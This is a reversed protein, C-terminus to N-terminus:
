EIRDLEQQLAQRFEDSSLVAGNANPSPFVAILRRSEKIGPLWENIWEDLEIMEAAAGAWEGNACEVAYQSHPWVPVTEVGDPTSTLVWGNSDKLSWIEEQDAFKKMTYAVREKPSLRLVSQTEQIKLKWSM